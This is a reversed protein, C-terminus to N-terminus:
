DCQAPTVPLVYRAIEIDTYDLNSIFNLRESESTTYFNDQETEQYLRYFPVSGCVQTPYIYIATDTLIYGSQLAADRETTSITYFNDTGASTYLRYFRVASEEPTDFVFAAAGQVPYTAVVANLSNIDTTYYHDVVTPNYQRYFLLADTPDGCTQPACTEAPGPNVASTLGVVVFLFIASLTYNM